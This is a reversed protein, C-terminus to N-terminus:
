SLKKRLWKKMARKLEKLAPRVGEQQSPHLQLRVDYLERELEVLRDSGVQAYNRYPEPIAELMYKRILEKDQERGIVAAESLTNGGHIRYYVLRQDDLYKVRDPFTHIMRLIYDYDHLYRLSSFQGIQKAAETTMFLNSTTVMLNGRLFAAYLDSCAFYHDRNTKYWVNWWLAPDTFERDDDDIPIVDTFACVTGHGECCTVLKELRDTTYIDNSNLISIYKGQAMSIARNITNYADQNEQYYYRLRRDEYTKIVAETGDTSGDNVIILELDSYSQNLVSEIAAGIFREHNYAPIVVSILSSM